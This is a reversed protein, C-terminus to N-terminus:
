KNKYLEKYCKNCAVEFSDNIDITKCESTYVFNDCYDCFCKDKIDDDDANFFNLIEELYFEMFLIIELKFLNNSTESANYLTLMYEKNKNDYDIFSNNDYEIVYNFPIDILHVNSKKSHEKKTVIKKSILFKNFAKHIPKVQNDNAIYKNYLNKNEFLSNISYLRDIFTGITCSTHKM